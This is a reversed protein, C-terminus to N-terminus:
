GFTKVSVKAMPDSEVERLYAHLEVIQKDDTFAKGKMLGDLLAKILNDLDKGKRSTVDFYMNVVLRSQGFRMGAARATLAVATEYDKTAKPTYVTKTKYNVRPREKAVPEGPVIITITPKSM